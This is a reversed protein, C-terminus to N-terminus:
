TLLAALMAGLLVIGVVGNVLFFAANVRSLDGPRVIAHEIVLLVGVAAVGAYYWGNLPAWLPLAVLLALTIAHLLASAVLAGGLGLRKPLSHLMAQSRDFAVDQCAYIIDFGAIWTAVIVSLIFPVASDLRGTVAIWAALPSIGIALGLLLHCWSTFRKAYSYGLIAALALPSLALCATNLMGAAFVFVASSALLFGWAFRVSLMGSPIPRGVTRPNKADFKVDVIRNFTMAASRAGVMAVVIWVLTWGDPLGEAALCAGMLAFPLAFISHEFKIMKLVTLLKHM